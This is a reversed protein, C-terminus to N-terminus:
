RQQGKGKERAERRRRDAEQLDKVVRDLYESRADLRKLTDRTERQSEHLRSRDEISTANQEKVVWVERYMWRVLGLVRRTDRAAMIMFGLTLVAIGLFLYVWKDKYVRHM